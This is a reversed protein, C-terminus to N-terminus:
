LRFRMGMEFGLMLPQVTRISKPQGCDFYYRLSPDIYMGIHDGLMFEVGIGAAASWQLGKVNEVHTIDYGLLFYKDSVCKEVAGGAYAYFNLHKQNVINYFVNVPIGIYSQNNRIDSSIQVDATKPEPNVKTYKGYFKRTLLTYNLGVGVSWRPAFEIMAGAGFSLPVGYTSTTSTQEIGTKTPASSVSPRKMPNVRGNPNQSNNTGAIGSLVIAVPKRQRQPEDDFFIGGMEHNYHSDFTEVDKPQHKQSATEATEHKDENVIVDEAVIETMKEEVVDKVSIHRQQAAATVEEAQAIYRSPLTENPESTEQPTIVAIMDSDAAAPSLQPNENWNFIVGIVVAAAVAAAVAARRWWVIVAKKRAAIRDLGGAVGDWVHVPVEEQANELLSKALFDINNNDKIM